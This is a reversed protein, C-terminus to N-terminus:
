KTENNTIYPNLQVIRYQAHVQPVERATLNIAQVSAERNIAVNCLYSSCVIPAGRRSHQRYSPTHCHCTSHLIRLHHRVVAVNSGEFTNFGIKLAALLVLLAIAVSQALSLGESNLTNALKADSEHQRILQANQGPRAM